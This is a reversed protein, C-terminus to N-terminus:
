KIFLNNTIESNYCEILDGKKFNGKGSPFLGWVNSKTFPKIRFSEQGKHIEFEAIGKKSFILKGSIPLMRGLGVRTSVVGFGFGLGGTLKSSAKILM